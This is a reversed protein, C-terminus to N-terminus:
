LDLFQGRGKPSSAGVEDDDPPAKAEGNENQAEAQLERWADLELDPDRPDDESLMADFEDHNYHWVKGNLRITGEDKLRSLQPSLSTRMIEDRGWERAFFDLLGNATAGDLLHEKLAKVVLQKMTLGQIDPNAKRAHHAVARLSADNGITPYIDTEMAAIGADIQHIEHEWAKVRARTQELIHWLEARRQRLLPAFRDGHGQGSLGLRLYTALNPQRCGASLWKSEIQEM